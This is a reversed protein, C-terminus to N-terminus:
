FMKTLKLGKLDAKLKEMESLVLRYKEESKARADQQDSLSKKLDGLASETQILYEEHKNKLMRLLSKEMEYSAELRSAFGSCLEKFELHEYQSLKAKSLEYEPATQSSSSVHKSLVATAPKSFSTGTIIVAGLDEATTLPSPPKTADMTEKPSSPLDVQDEPKDQNPNDQIPASKMTPESIIIPTSEGTKRKEGEAGPVRIVPSLASMVLDGSTPPSSENPKKKNRTPLGSVLDGSHSRTKRNSTHQAKKLLFNPDLCANPHSFPVKECIRRALKPPSPSSDSSVSILEISDEQSENDENKSPADGVQSEDAESPETVVAKGKGKSKKKPPPRAQKM